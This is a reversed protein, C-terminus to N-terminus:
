LMMNDGFFRDLDSFDSDKGSLPQDIGNPFWDQSRLTQLNPPISALAIDAASIGSPQRAAINLLSDPLSLMLATVSRKAPLPALELLGYHPASRSRKPPLIGASALGAEKDLHYLTNNGHPFFGIETPRLLDSKFGSAKETLNLHSKPKSNTRQRGKLGKKEPDRKALTERITQNVKQRAARDNLTYFRDM